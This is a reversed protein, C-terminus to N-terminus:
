SRLIRFSDEFCVTCFQCLHFEESSVNEVEALLGMANWLSWIIENCSKGETNIGECISRLYSLLLWCCLLWSKFVAQKTESRQPLSSLYNTLVLIIKTPKNTKDNNIKTSQKIKHLKPKETCKGKKKLYVSMSFSCNMLFIIWISLPLDDM